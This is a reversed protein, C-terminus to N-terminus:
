SVQAPLAFYFTSGKGQESEAWIRGSHAEVLMKTAYLGIGLGETDSQSGSARYYREFVYPLEAASIGVGHDLIAVLVERGQPTLSVSIQSGQPSYKLANILLNTLIRDLKDPDAIVAPLDEMSQVEIRGTTDLGPLRDILDLIFPHLNLSSRNLKLQGSEVRSVDVLDQIMANMRQASTAIAEMSRIARGDIGSKGLARKLLQAHGQIATLPSRLDHSITQIFAEREAEARKRESSEIIEWQGHRKILAFRHNSIVDAVESVGCLDAQYTCLAMMPYRGIVGDIAEEYDTFSRWDKRELWATNGTVRIGSFGRKLAKGLRQVWADLVRQLDFVGDIVYWEDHPRIELQGSELYRDAEPVVQRLARKADVVGIPGATVWMCFENNELGAKFYRTLIDLLDQGTEYFQCFHTGWPVSGILDIGSNRLGKGM